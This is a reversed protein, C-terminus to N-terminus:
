ELVAVKFLEGMADKSTLRHLASMIDKAQQYSANKLLQGAREKIGYTQLFQGQTIVHCENFRSFDVHATIDIEGINKLIDHYQHDKVAQLTSVYPMDVYGYDIIVAAGGHARIHSKIESFIKQGQANVEIVSGSQIKSHNHLETRAGLTYDLDQNLHQEYWSEKHYVYQKVPIADFFENAVFITPQPPLNKIQAFWKVNYQSLKAQQANHLRQSIEMLYVETCCHAFVKKAARMIDAMMTGKGPGLEANTFSKPSGIEEWKMMLWVSITEAFLQSIEPATIFDGQAGIPDQKMYYGYQENYLAFDMFQEISISGGNSVILDQLAKIM